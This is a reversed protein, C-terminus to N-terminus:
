LSEQYFGADWMAQEAHIKTFLISMQATNM